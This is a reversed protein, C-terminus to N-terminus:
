IANKWQAKSSMDFDNFFSIMIGDSVLRKQLQFVDLQRPYIGKEICMSAACGASESIHMFTPEVRITGWAIHTASLCVPVLLNEIGKSIISRFPIQSPRTLESLLVAGEYASGWQQITNCEHSDMPWEAIAISDYKIPTRSYSKAATCDNETITYDGIIRRAERVYIEYPFNDNDIFEDKPLGYQKTYNRIHLPVAEDNQLFFLLGLEHNKHALLIEQRTKWDAEPYTHNKGPYNGHNWNIKSNPLRKWNHFKFDNVDSQLWKSKLPYAKGFSEKYSETIGLYNERKYGDPKTIAKQNNPDPSLTIRYNYAQISNDGKGTSGPFIRGTTVEFTRLNLKGFKAESPFDGPEYQCFIKGAHMENHEDRSERGIRYSAGVIAALDGEYSCDMFIHGTLSIKENKTLSKFNVKIILKETRETSNPIFGKHLFINDEEAIMENFVIEAAHAEYSLTEIFTQYPESLEGYKKRYFDTLREIFENNIPSRNGLFLTDSTSLGSTPMGGIYQIYHVLDVKHGDRAIRLAAAIGGPTAGYIVVKEKKEM